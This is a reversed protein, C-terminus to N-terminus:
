LKLLLKGASITVQYYIKGQWQSKSAIILGNYKNIVIDYSLALGLGTGATLGKTTFFPEFLKCKVEECFGMGSDEIECVLYKDERYTKIKLINPSTEQNEKYFEIKKKIEYIANKIINMIVQSIEIKNCYISPLNNSLELEVEDFIEIDLSLINLVYDIIENFKEKNLGMLQSLEKNQMLKIRENQRDLQCQLGEIDKEKNNLAENMSQFQREYELRAFIASFMESAIKLLFKCDEDWVKNKFTNDLGLYGILKDNYTLPLTILSKIGQELLIEKEVEAEKSMKEVDEIVIIENAKLKKVVM